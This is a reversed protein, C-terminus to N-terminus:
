AHLVPAALAAASFVFAAIAKLVIEKHYSQLFQL